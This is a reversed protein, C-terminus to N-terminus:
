SGERSAASSASKRAWSASASAASAPRKSAYRAPATTVGGCSDASSMSTARGSAITTTSLGINGPVPWRIQLSQMFAQM